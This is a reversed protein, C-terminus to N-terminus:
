NSSRRNARTDISLGYAFDVAGSDLRPTWQLSGNADFKSLFADVIGAPHGGLDGRTWGAVFVNGNRDVV